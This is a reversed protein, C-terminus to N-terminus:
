RVLYKRSQGASLVYYNLQQANGFFAKTLRHTGDALVSEASAQGELRLLGKNKGRNLFIIPEQLAENPLALAKPVDAQTLLGWSGAEPRGKKLALVETGFQEIFARDVTGSKPRVAGADIDTLLKQIDWTDTFWTFFQRPHRFASKPQPLGMPNEM